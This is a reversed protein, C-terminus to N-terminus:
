SRLFHFRSPSLYENLVSKKSLWTPKKPSSALASKYLKLLDQGTRTLTYRSLSAVSATPASEALVEHLWSQLPQFLPSQNTLNDQILEEQYSEPLSGFDVEQKATLKNWGAELENVLLPSQYLHYAEAVREEFHQRLKREDLLSLPIPIRKYFRGPDIGERRFDTTIEPLDRGILPKQLIAPELFALGFGEAISTTLLHTAHQLWDQFSSGSEQNPPLQDTVNFDIPLEHQSAFQQWREHVPQWIPNEPELSIAFRTQPPALSALLVAEGINKRRIGRVPYLVLKDSSSAPQQGTLTTPVIANPLLHSTEPPLGAQELRTQDRSNIFAYHIQPAVPYIKEGLLLPYNTPRNDEAFDHPQLVLPIETTALQAILQSFLYNKGLSHNHIHWLDPTTGWHDQTCTTLLETLNPTPKKKESLYNLESITKHPVGDIAPGSTLVLHKVGIQTLATSQNRIVKTM